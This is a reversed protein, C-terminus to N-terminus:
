VVGRHQRLQQRYDDDKGAVSVKSKQKQLIVSCCSCIGKTKSEKRKGSGFMVYGCKSCKGYRSKKGAM